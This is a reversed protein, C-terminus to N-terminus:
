SVGLEQDIFAFLEDRTASGIREAVAGGDATGAEANVAALLAHLRETIRIRASRDPTARTLTAELRDLDGFVPNDVAVAGDLVLARVYEALLVCTPHDFVV